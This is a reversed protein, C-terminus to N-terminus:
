KKSEIWRAFKHIIRSLRNRPHRIRWVKEDISREIEEIQEPSLQKKLPEIYEKRSQEPVYVETPM